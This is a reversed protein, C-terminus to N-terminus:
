WRLIVWFLFSSHTSRVAETVAESSLPTRCMLLRYSSSWYVRQGKCKLSRNLVVWCTWRYLRQHASRSKDQKKVRLHVLAMNWYGSFTLFRFLFMLVNTHAPLTSQIIVYWIQKQSIICRRFLVASGAPPATSCCCRSTWDCLSKNVEHVGASWHESIINLNVKACEICWM